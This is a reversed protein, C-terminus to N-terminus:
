RAAEGDAEEMSRKVRGYVLYSIMATLADAILQAWVIGTMGFFHDLLFLIPINMGLQRLISLGLSVRGKGLAQMYHVMQFSLFMVAPAFCRARLYQTGLAVTQADRIFLQMIQPAFAWYLGICVAAVALGCRRATRFFAYMRERNGAAYNYAVLPMMALCIGICTNLPLREIKLIIGMAALEIDGHRSALKNIVINSLDYLLLNVAAPVGVSFIARMSTREVREIRRPLALVTASRVKQYVVVYYFFSIVNSLLTALGAGLVENGRPLLLFMFLPDLAVNLIGGLSVGIGAERSYGTNRLMSSMVNNLMTPVAGIIVVPILYQRAYGITNESAGLLRLLPDMFSLCLLSFVLATGATMVLSVSAVRRAEEEQRRGLLQVVLNGGGVGFLNSLGTIMLFVTAVLSSAAVMYPNDTLGIYWTDALNYVLVILQSIITPVAMVTLARLVPVSSFLEEKSAKKRLVRMEWEAIKAKNYLM